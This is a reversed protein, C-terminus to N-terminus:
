VMKSVCGRGTLVRFAIVSMGSFWIISYPVIGSCYLLLLLVAHCAPPTHGHAHAHSHPHWRSRSHLSDFHAHVALSSCVSYRPGLSPLSMDLELPAPALTPGSADAGAGATPDGLVDRLVDSASRDRYRRTVPTHCYCTLRRHTSFVAPCRAHPHCYEPVICARTSRCDPCLPFSVTARM